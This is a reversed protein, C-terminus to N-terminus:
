LKAEGKLNIILRLPEFTLLKEDGIAKGLKTQHTYNRWVVDHALMKTAIRKRRWLEKVYVFHITATEPQTICYGVIFNEDFALCAVKIDVKPDEMLADLVAPYYAYFQRRDISGFGVCGHLVGKLFTSYVFSKDLGWDMDRIIVAETGEDTGQNQNDQYISHATIQSDVQSNDANNERRHVNDM